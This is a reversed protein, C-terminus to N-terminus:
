VQAVLNQIDEAQRAVEQYYFKAQMQDNEALQYKFIDIFVNNAAFGDQGPRKYIEKLNAAM